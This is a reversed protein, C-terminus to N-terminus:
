EIPLRILANTPSPVAGLPAFHLTVAVSDKIGRKTDIAIVFASVTDGEASSEPPKIRSVTLAFAGATDTTVYTTTCCVRGAYYRPGVTASDIPQNKSGIVKGIVRACTFVRTDGGAQVCKGTKADPETADSCAVLVMLVACCACAFRIIVSLTAKM